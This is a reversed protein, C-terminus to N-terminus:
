LRLAIDHTGLGKCGKANVVETTSGLGVPVFIFM